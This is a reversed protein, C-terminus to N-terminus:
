RRARSHTALRLRARKSVHHTTVFVLMDLSVRLVNMAMTVVMWTVHDVNWRWVILARHMHRRDNRYMASRWKLRATAKRRWVGFVARAASWRHSLM